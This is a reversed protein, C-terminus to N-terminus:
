MHSLQALSCNWARNMDRIAEDCFADVKCAASLADAAPGEDQQEREAYQAFMRRVIPTVTMLYTDIIQLYETSRLRRREDQEIERKFRDEDIEGALYALRLRWRDESATDVIRRYRVRTVHYVHQVRSCLREVLRRTQPTVRAAVRAIGRRVAANGGLSLEDDVCEGDGDLMNGYDDARGEAGLRAIYEFYYPNHIAQNVIPQGTAWSFPSNCATCFMQDCNRVVTGDELLFRRNGDVRWGHYTGRGMAEIVVTSSAGDVGFGVFLLADEERVRALFDDVRVEIGDLLGLADFFSRAADAADEGQFFRTQPRLTDRDAWNVVAIDPGVHRVGEDIYRLLLTHKSNVVYSMGPRQVVRFLEDEGTMVGLVERRGEGGPEDGALVDGVCVDRAAKVGRGDALRVRVDAGFCGGTKTVPVHCTPCPKTDRKLMAFTAVDDPDCTHTDGDDGDTVVSRCHECVRAACVGCKWSGDVLGRCAPVQCAFYMRKNNVREHRLREEARDSRFGTQLLISQERGLRFADARLGDLETELALIRARKATLAGCTRKFQIYGAMREEQTEPLMSKEREFLVSARNPMWVSHWWRKSFQQQLFGVSWTKGCSM